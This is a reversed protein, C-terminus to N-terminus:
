FFSFLQLAQDNMEKGSMAGVATLCHKLKATNTGIQYCIFIFNWIELGDRRNWNIINEKEYPIWSGSGDVVLTGM